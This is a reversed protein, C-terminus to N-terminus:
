DSLLFGRLDFLLSSSEPVSITMISPITDFPAEEGLEFGCGAMAGVM